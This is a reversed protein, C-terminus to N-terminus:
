ATQKALHQRVADARDGAQQVATRLESETCGLAQTWYRVEHPQSMNIRNRDQPGRNIPDDAM